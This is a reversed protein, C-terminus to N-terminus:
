QLFLQLCFSFNFVSFIADLQRYSFSCRCRHHCVHDCFMLHFSHFQNSEYLTFSFFKFFFVMSRSFLISYAFQSESQICRCWCLQIALGPSSSFLFVIEKLWKRDSAGAKQLIGIELRITQSMWKNFQLRFDFIHKSNCLHMYTFFVCEVGAGNLEITSHFEIFLKSQRYHSQKPKFKHAM